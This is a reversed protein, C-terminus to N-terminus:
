AGTRAPAAPTTVGFMHTIIPGLRLAFPLLRSARRGTYIDMAKEAFDDAAILDTDTLAFWLRVRVYEEADASDLEEMMLIPGSSFLLRGLIEAFTLNITLQVAVRPATETEDSEGLVDVFQYIPGATLPTIALTGHM